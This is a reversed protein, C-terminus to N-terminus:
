HPKHSGRATSERNTRNIRVGPQPNLQVRKEANYMNFYDGELCFDQIRGQRHYIPSSNEAVTGSKSNKLTLVANPNLIRSIM